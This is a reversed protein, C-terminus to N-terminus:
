MLLPDPTIPAPAKIPCEEALLTLSIHALLTTIQDSRDQKSLHSSPTEAGRRHPSERASRHRQRAPGRLPSQLRAQSKHEFPEHSAASADSKPDRFLAKQPGSSVTSVM